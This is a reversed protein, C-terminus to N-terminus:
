NRPPADLGPPPLATGREIRDGAPSPGVAGCAALAIGLILLCLALSRPM